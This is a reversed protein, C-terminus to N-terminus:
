ADEPTMITVVPRPDDGPGIHCILTVTRPRTGKGQRPVRAIRFRVQDGSTQSAAISAMNLVDHLRGREDQSM